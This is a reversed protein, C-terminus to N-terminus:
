EGKGMGKAKNEKTCGKPQQTKTDIFDYDPHPCIYQGMRLNNCDIEYTYDVGNSLPIWLLFLLPGSLLQMLHFMGNWKVVIVEFVVSDSSGRDRMIGRCERWTQQIKFACDNFRSKGRAGAVLFTRFSINMYTYNCKVQRWNYRYDHARLM